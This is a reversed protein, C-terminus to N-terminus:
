NPNPTPCPHYVCMKSVDMLRIVVLSNGQLEMAERLPQKKRPSKTGLKPDPHLM